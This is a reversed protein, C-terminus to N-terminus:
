KNKIEIMKVRLSNKTEILNEGLKIGKSYLEWLIDWIPHPTHVTYASKGESTGTIRTLKWLGKCEDSYAIEFCSKRLICGNKFNVLLAFSSYWIFNNM